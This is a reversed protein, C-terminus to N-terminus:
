EARSSLGRVRILESQTLDKAPLSSRAVPARLCALLDSGAKTVAYVRGHSKVSPTLCEVLRRKALERLTRSVHTIRINTERALQQPVKPGTVLVTMVKMRYGSSAVFGFDLWLQDPFPAPSPGAWGPARADPEPTLPRGPDEVHRRKPDRELSVLQLNREAFISPEEGNERRRLPELTPRKARRRREERMTKERGEAGDM